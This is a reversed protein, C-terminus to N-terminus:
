VVESLETSRCVDRSAVWDPLRVLQQQSVILAVDRGFNRIPDAYNIFQFLNKIAMLLTGALPMEIVARSRWQWGPVERWGLKREAGEEAVYPGRFREV